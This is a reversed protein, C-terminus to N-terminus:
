SSKQDQLDNILNSVIERAITKNLENPDEQLLAQAKSLQNSIHEKTVEM